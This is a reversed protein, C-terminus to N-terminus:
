KGLKLAGEITTATHRRVWERVSKKYRAPIGAANATRGSRRVIEGISVTIPLTLHPRRETTGDDGVKDRRQMQEVLVSELARQWDLDETNPYGYTSPIVRFTRGDPLRVSKAEKPQTPYRRKYGADYYGIVALNAESYVYRAVAKSEEQQTSEIDTESTM